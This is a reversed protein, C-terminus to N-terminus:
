TYPGRIGFSSTAEEAVTAKALRATLVEVVPRLLSHNWNSDLSSNTPGPVLNYEWKVWQVTPNQALEPHSCLRSRWRGTRERLGVELNSVLM